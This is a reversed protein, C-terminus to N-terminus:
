TLNKGPQEGWKRLLLYIVYMAPYKALMKL